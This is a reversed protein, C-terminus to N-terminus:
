MGEVREVEGSSGDGEVSGVGENGNLGRDM